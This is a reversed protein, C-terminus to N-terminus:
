APTTAKAIAARVIRWAKLPSPVFGDVEQLKEAGAFELGAEAERLAELLADYANGRRVLEHALEPSLRSCVDGGDTTMIVMQGNTLFPAVKYPATNAQM